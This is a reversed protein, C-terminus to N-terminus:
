VREQAKLSFSWLQLNPIILPPNGKKINFITYQTYENSVCRFFISFIDRHHWRVQFTSKSENARVVGTEFTCEHNRFFPTRAM